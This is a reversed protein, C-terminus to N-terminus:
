SQPTSDPSPNSNQPVAFMGQQVVVKVLPSEVILPAIQVASYQHQVASHQHHIQALDLAHARDLADKKEAAEIKMKELKLQQQHEKKQLYSQGAYYMGAGGVCGCGTKMWPCCSGPEM